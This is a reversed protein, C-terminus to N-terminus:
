ARGSAACTSATSGTSSRPPRTPPTPPRSQIGANNYALDLGGFTEVTRRVATTVQDEDSVDCSVALVRHGADRLEHEAADLAEGALDALAVAAGSEAFARATAFGMGSGAGTVFATQGSFDYTPM